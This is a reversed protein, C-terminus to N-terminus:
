LNAVYRLAIRYKQVLSVRVAYLKMMRDAYFIEYLFRLLFQPCSFMIKRIIRKYFLFPMNVFIPFLCMIKQVQKNEEPTIDMVSESFFDKPLRANKEPNYYGHEIAYKTLALGPFPVFINALGLSPKAKINLELTELMQDPKEGPLGIINGIRYPIKYKTLLRAAELAQESSMSRKLVANRLFENGSEISWNVGICNSESLGKAIEEDVLNARINCTYSLNFEKPFRRSFDLFWKKDIIFTDDNFVVNKLPYKNKVTRIEELLYGINKKRVTQGCGKFLEKFTHNFCYACDYPCGRGSLFQKSPMDRLLADVKYVVDRDPFPLKDLDAFQYFESPVSDDKFFINKEGQLGSNIFNVLAIEGEGICAADISTKKIFERDFTPGPGGILSRVKISKKVAADFEAFLPLAASFSSYLLLDPKIGAIRRLAKKLSKETIFDVEINHAKMAASLSYIGHQDYFNRFLDIFLVRPM